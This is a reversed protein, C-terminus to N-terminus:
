SRRGPRRGLADGRKSLKELVFWDAGALVLILSIFVTQAHSARFVVNTLRPLPIDYENFVMEIRPVGLAFLLLFLGWAIGHIFLRFPTSDCKPEGTVRATHSNDGSSNAPLLTM